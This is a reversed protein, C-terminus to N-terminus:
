RGGGEARVADDLAKEAIQLEATFEELRKTLLRRVRICMAEHRELATQALDRRRRFEAYQMALSLKTTM